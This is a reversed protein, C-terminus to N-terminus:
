PKMSVPWTRLKEMPVVVPVIGTPRLSPLPSNVAVSLVSSVDRFPGIMSVPPPPIALPVRVRDLM